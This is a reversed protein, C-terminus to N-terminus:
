PASGIEIVLDAAHARDLPTYSISGLAASRLHTVLQSGGSTNDKALVRIGVLNATPFLPLLCDAGAPVEKGADGVGVIATWGARVLAHCITRGLDQTEGDSINAYMAFRVPTTARLSTILDDQTRQAITRPEGRHIVMTNGSGIQLGGIPGNITGIAPVNAGTGGHDQHFMGVIPPGAWAVLAVSGVAIAVWRMMGWSKWIREIAKVVGEANGDSM